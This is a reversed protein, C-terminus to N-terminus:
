EESRLRDRPRQRKGAADRRGALDDGTARQGLDRRQQPHFHQDPRDVNQRPVEEETPEFSLGFQPPREVDKSRAVEAEGGPQIGAAAPELSRPRVHHTAMRKTGRDFRAVGRRNRAAKPPESHCFVYASRIADIIRRVDDETGRGCHPGAIMERSRYCEILAGLTKTVRRRGCSPMRSARRSASRSMQGSSRGGVWSAIRARTRPVFPSTHRNVSVISAGTISAAPGVNRTILWIATPKSLISTAAAVARPIGM